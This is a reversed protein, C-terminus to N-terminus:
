EVGRGYHGRTYLLGSERLLKGAEGSERLREFLSLVAGTEEADETTFDLRFSAFDMERLEPYDGFLCLSVSNYIINYCFPCCNRISFKKHYRDEIFTVGPKKHCADATKEACQATIMLPQYGYLVMASGSVGRRPLEKRNLEFPATDTGVGANRLFSRSEKNWAYLGADSEIKGHYGIDKMWQLEELNRVLIGDANRIMSLNGPNNLKNYTERRLIYPLALFLKKASGRIEEAYTERKDPDAWLEPELTVKNIWDKRTVEALQEKTLVTVAFDRPEILRVTHSQTLPTYDPKKRAAADLIQESLKDLAQRRLENLGKVSCYIGPDVPIELTDFIFPTNGTKRLRASIQDEDLAHKKAETVIEGKASAFRVGDSVTLSAPQGLKLRATGTIRTRGIGEDSQLPLEGKRPTQFDSGQAYGYGPKAASIMDAGNRENYYGTGSGSRSYTYNLYDLDERTVEWKLERGDTMKERLAYYRDIYKRYMATVGKTYEPKKMRGEIKLSTIGSEILEPLIPLTNMDKLSLYYGQRGKLKYPLRCPQACRGRNGSRGGLMSSFLCRGSYCYCMAGHVFCEIEMDTERRIRHIEALSLERALVVRSVGSDSLFQIAPTDTISMQTSAHIRLDPFNRRIFSVAGLDQVIVAELGREYLPLLAEYLDDMENEKILTNVTLYLRINRLRAYDIAALLEEDSFNAAYARAGFLRGGLYVADAGAEISAQFSEYSGAPALLEIRKM